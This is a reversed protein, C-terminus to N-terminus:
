GTSVVTGRQPQQVSDLGVASPVRYGRPPALALGVLGFVQADGPTADQHGPLPRVLGQIVVAGFAARENPLEEFLGADLGRVAGFVPRVQPFTGGGCVGVHRGARHKQQVGDGFPLSPLGFVGGRL